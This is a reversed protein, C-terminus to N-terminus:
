LPKEFIRYTKSHVAGLRELARRMLVNDELIWSLEARRYGRPVGNKFTHYVLLSDIGRRRHLDVVGLTVVRVCGIKRRGLLFQLAGFPFLRGKMKKFLPNYDPLALSFGVPEGDIEALLAVAPDTIAKLNRAAFEFQDQTMPVFGWNREWARNYVSFAKRVDEEFNSMRMSRVVVSLRNQVREVFRVLYRPIQGAYQYDYALLDKAKAYGLESMFDLYYPKTYTMMIAPLRDFGWALFGCEHNTSFNFPGRVTSMGEQRLWGEAAGFLARAVEPREVSEFFGFFGTQEGAFENHRSNVHASIRGAIRGAEDLALFYRVETFAFVPNKRSFFERRESLLHPVFCPDDAYLALPYRIFQRLERPSTVERIEIGM